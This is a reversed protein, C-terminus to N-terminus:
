PARREAGRLSDFPPYDRLHRLVRSDLEPELDSPRAEQLHAMLRDFAWEDEDLLALIGAAMPGAEISDLQGFVSQASDSLGAAKLVGSYLLLGRPVYDLPAAPGMTRRNVDPQLVTRELLAWASDPSPHDLNGLAMIMLQCEALMWATGSDPTDQEAEAADSCVALAREDEGLEFLSRALYYKVDRRAELWPDQRLAQEGLQRAQAYDKRDRALIISLMGTAEPHPPSGRAATQLDQEARRLNEEQTRQDVAEFFTGWDSLISARLFLADRNGHDKELAERLRELAMQGLEKREQPDPVTSPGRAGSFVGIAAWRRANEAQLILPEAWGPDLSSALTCLSDAQHAMWVAQSPDPRILRMIGNSARRGEEYATWAEDSDTGLRLERREVVAGLKQRLRETIKGVIDKLVGVRNARPGGAVAIDIQEGLSHGDELDWRIRISDGDASIEGSLFFDVELEELISDPPLTPDRYGSVQRWSPVNLADFPRFHTITAQSVEEALEALQDDLTDSPLLPLFALRTGVTPPPTAGEGTPGKPWLTVAVAGAVIGAGTILLGRRRWPGRTPDKPRERWTRPPPFGLRERVWPEVAWLTPTLLVLSGVAIALLQRVTIPPVGLGDAVGIAVFAFTFFTLVARFVWWDKMTEALEVLWPRDQHIDTRPAAIDQSAPSLRGTGEQDGPATARAGLDPVRAAGVDEGSRIRDALASTEDLPVEDMLAMARRFTEYAQLAEARRGDMALLRMTTQVPGDDEPELEVWHRANGLAELLKGDKTLDEITQFRARRHLGTLRSQVSGVWQEFYSTQVLSIGQLFPGQYLELASSYDGREVTTQFARADLHILDAAQYIEGKTLICERGCVKRLDSVATSLSSRARKEPKEPWFLGTLQDRTAEGQYSLYILIALRLKWSRLPEIEEEDRFVRL